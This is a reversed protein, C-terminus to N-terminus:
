NHLPIKLQVVFKNDLNNIELRCDGKYLLDLRKKINTLGIGSSDMNNGKRSKNISNEIKFNLKNNKITLDIEVSFENNVSYGHKFANEVFPILLMPPIQKNTIEGNVDFIINNKSKDDMKLKNLDIFDKIMEIENELRVFEANTDYIMYRMLHSLHGIGNATDEDGYTSSMSFLNNLTNFLFHPNVQGKLFELEAKLKQTKLEQIINHQKEQSQRYITTLVMIILPNFAFKLVPRENIWLTDEGVMGEVPIPSIFHIQSFIINSSLGQALIGFLFALLGAYLGYHLYKKHKMYKEILYYNVHVPIILPLIIAAALEYGFPLTVLIFALIWIIMNKFIFEKNNIVLKNLKM